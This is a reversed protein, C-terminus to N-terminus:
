IFPNNIEVGDIIQGHQLDESYLIKCESEVAAAIIMSDNWSYNYSNLIKLATTVLGKNFYVRCIPYMTSNLYDSLDIISMPPNVIKLVVNVIEQIVQYSIVGNYNRLALEILKIADNKKTIDNEDFSYVFINTDIFFKDKM